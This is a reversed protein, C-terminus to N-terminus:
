KGHAEIWRLFAERPIRISRGIHITPLGEHDILLYIKSRSMSLMHAAEEIRILLPPEDSPPRRKTTM